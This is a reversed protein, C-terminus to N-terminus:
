SSSRRSSATKFDRVIESVTEIKQIVGASKGAQWYEEYAKSQTM